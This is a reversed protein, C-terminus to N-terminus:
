EVGEFWEPGIYKGLLYFKQDNYWLVCKGDVQTCSTYFSNNSPREIFLKPEATFWVPQHANPQYKGAILYLPGRNQWPSKANFDFKNHILAFYYGSGAECGKWDYMPCPSVPHLFPKGGDRDLLKEPKSWTIGDDSSVTWCPYGTGTRMLAFLRGDPLKVIGPEECHVGVHLCDDDTMVWNLEIEDAEPDDDINPFHIFETVTRYKHHHEPAAYRTVGVLYTGDKGLRLPRQWVVWEPPISTDSADNNTRPVNPVLKPESWTEGKDDSYIATMLGTHQRNTSVKGPVYQNYIVYIRGSKSVMPFGWSAIPTEENMTKPGALVKPKSWTKGNDNSRYFAVHQDIAGECTAQCDVAYMTGDIGDFVQFHDNYCDGLVDEKIEPRYVVFDPKSFLYDNPNEAQQKKRWALTSEIRKQYEARWQDVNASQQAQSMGVPLLFAGLLLNMWLKKM